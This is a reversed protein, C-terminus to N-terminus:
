RLTVCVDTHCRPASTAPSELTWQAMVDTAHRAGAVLGVWLVAWVLLARLRRERSRLESDLECM